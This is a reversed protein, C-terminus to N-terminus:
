QVRDSGNDTTVGIITIGYIKELHIIEDLLQNYALDRGKKVSLNNHVITSYLKGEVLLVAAALHKWKKNSQSDMVLTGDLDKINSAMKENLTSIKEQLLRNRLIWSSLNKQGIYKMFYANVESHNAANFRAELSLFLRLTNHQWEQIQSSTKVQQVDNSPKLSLVIQRLFSQSQVQSSSQSPFSVQSQSQSPKDFNDTHPNYPCKQLYKM